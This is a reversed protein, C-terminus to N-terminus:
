LKLVVHASKDRKPISRRLLESCYARIKRQEAELAKGQSKRKARKTEFELFQNRIQSAVAHPKKMQAPRRIALCLLASCHTTHNNIQPTFM